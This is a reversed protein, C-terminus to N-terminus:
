ASTAGGRLYFRHWFWSALQQELSFFRGPARSFAACVGSQSLAFIIDSAGVIEIIESRKMLYPLLAGMEKPDHTDFEESGGDEDATAADATTNNCTSSGFEQDLSLPLAPDQMWKHYGLVHERLYM